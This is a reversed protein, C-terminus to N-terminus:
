VKTNKIIEIDKIEDLFFITSRWRNQGRGICICSLELGTVNNSEELILTVTGKLSGKDNEEQSLNWRSPPHPSFIKKPDKFSVIVDDGIVLSEAIKQITKLNKETSNKNKTFFNKFWNLM